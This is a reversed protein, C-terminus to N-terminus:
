KSVARAKCPGAHGPDLYCRLRTGCCGCTILGPCLDGVIRIGVAYNRAKRQDFLWTFGKDNDPIGFGKAIADAVHKSSGPLNDHSDLEGPSLRTITIEAPLDFPPRVGFRSTLVMTVDARQKRVSSAQQFRARRSANALSINLSKLVIGPIVVDLVKM